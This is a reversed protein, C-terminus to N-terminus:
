SETVDSGGQWLGIRVVIFEAPYVPKLGIEIHLRGLEQEARPNLADDIRVYFAEDPTSGFLAGDRWVSTLFAGITRRLSAWLSRDNPRFVAWRIGEEISEEVYVLLRRVNVYQFATNGRGSTTRAGWVIPRTSGPLIRLVNVGNAVNLPGQEGDTLKREVGLAGAVTVNAPPVHVPQDAWIGAVHGSPPVLVLGSTRRPVWIWPYYLSGFGREQVLTEARELANAGPGRPTMGAPTDFIALREGMQTCHSLLALQVAPDTSDPLALFNVDDVTRLADIATQWDAQTLAAPDDAAGGTLEADAVAAPRRDASPANSPLAPERVTVLTLPDAALVTGVYRPHDRMMSLATRTETAGAGGGAPVVALSFHQETARLATATPRRDFGNALGARLEVRYTTFTPAIREAAIARVVATEKTAGQAIEIVSGIGLASAKDEFRITRDGAVLDALRVTGATYTNALDADLQLVDGQVGTVVREDSDAGSAVRVRDGVRFRVAAEAPSPTAAAALRVQSGSGQAIPSSPRFADVAAGTTHAVTVEIKPAPVGADRAEVVLTTQAGSSRADPLALAARRGASARVIWATTGGNEFFGRAAYWLFYGELPEDGFQQTFADFSTVFTPENAPGSAAVGILGVTGTGVGQIAGAAPREEIHVGPTEYTTV